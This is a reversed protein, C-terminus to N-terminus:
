HTRIIFVPPRLTPIRLLHSNQRNMRLVDLMAIPDVAPRIWEGFHGNRFVNGKRAYFILIFKFITTYRQWLAGFGVKGQEILLTLSYFWISETSAFFEFGM